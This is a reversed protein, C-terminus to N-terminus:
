VTGPENEQDETLMAGSELTTTTPTNNLTESNTITDNTSNQDNTTTQDSGEIWESFAKLRAEMEEETERVRYDTVGDFYDCEIQKGGFWRGNMLQICKEASLASDFRIAIVGDLNKEFVTIKEIKGCKSETEAGVEGKLDEYFDETGEADKPNFM